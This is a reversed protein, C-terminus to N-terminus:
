EVAGTTEGGDSEEQAPEEWDWRQQFDYRENIIGIAAVYNEPLLGKSVLYAQVELTKEHREADDRKEFWKGDDTFYVSKLKVGM